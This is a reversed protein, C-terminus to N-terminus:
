EMVLGGDVYLTQGTMFNSWDSALFLVLNAVEQATGLRSMPQRAIFDKRRRECHHTAYIGNYLTPSGRNKNITLGIGTIHIDLVKLALDSGGCFNDENNM